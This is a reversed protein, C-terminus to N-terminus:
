KREMEIYKIKDVEEELEKIKRCVFIMDIFTSICTFSLFGLLFHVFM